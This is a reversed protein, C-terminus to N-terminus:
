RGVNPTTQVTSRQRTSRLGQIMTSHQLDLRDLHVIRAFISARGGILKTNDMSFDCQNHLTLLTSADSMKLPSMKLRDMSEAVTTHYM